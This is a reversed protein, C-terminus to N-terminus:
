MGLMLLGSLLTLMIIIVRGSRMTQFAEGQDIETTIGLALEPDWLWAGVVPVGRYDRYGELNRGQEGATASAAMVTLPLTADPEFTGEGEVLNAGPDRIEVNLIGREGEPILGIRRLQDDFRSESILRGREDFAYTEGTTGIRGRQFITAFDRGPDVRFTLLAIVDSNPGRIPAGVFMTPRGPSLVGTATPLPVDSAQPLGLVLEGAWLRALVREQSTMLNVLGVNEDRSSSLSVNGPGVIFFGEYGKAAQVRGHLSRLENQAPAALLSEQSREVALLDQTLGVVEPSSAWTLAEEQEGRVWSRIGQHSIELVTTLADEMEARSDSVIRGVAIWAAVVLVSLSLSTALVLFYWRSGATERNGDPTVQYTM